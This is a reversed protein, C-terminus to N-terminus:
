VQSFKMQGELSEEALHKQVSGPEVPNGEM